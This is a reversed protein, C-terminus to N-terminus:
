ERRKRPDDLYWAISWPPLRGAVPRKGGVYVCRGPPRRDLLIITEGVNALLTLRCGDGLRWTAQVGRGGLLRFSAHGGQVGALRPVIIKRRLRLLRRYFDRWAAGEATDLTEWDLRALQFTAPHGPDPIRDMTSPQAFAPFHVFERRRGERVRRMSEPGLDCFFPFPRRSGWEEGMFLLPISPALLVIGALARVAADGALSRLREGFARNGIQDHNQLFAIFATPPLDRSPEGRPAGNRYASKEGQYAFGEALGRGLYRLPADAYDQYCGGSEGTALVHAAHHLDDNWQATFARPAGRTDRRLYHAANCDNELLLHIHRARGPGAAVRAALEDLIDPRNDDRIAHVADLRLGDFRYEELWYLANHIFFERVPRCAPGDFNIADGWPTRRGPSFFQPAYRHLYNGEPGFHNYVVDLFMMMGHGHCADVLRKLDDPAGYCSAPAFPLVGDYGWGHAGPFDALPMLEVATVGLAALHGLRSAAGAFDGTRTFTGVHLEYIAAEEWPRGAWEDERWVYALPDIVESPGHVDVPNWRSAPDPWRLNAESCFGYRSGPAARATVCEFWGEGAKAMPLRMERGEDDLCVAMERAQPAWLRFRVCGGAAIEAGFPMSHRWRM